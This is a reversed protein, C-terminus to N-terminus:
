QNLGIINKILKKIQEDTIKEIVELLIGNILLERAEKYDLGRTM